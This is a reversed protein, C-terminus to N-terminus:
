IHVTGGTMNITSNTIFENRISFIVADAMDEPTGLRGIFNNAAIVKRKEDDWDAIMESEFASPLVLNIRVKGRFDRAITHLIGALAAKTTAYPMKAGLHAAATGVLTISSQPSLKSVYQAFGESLKAPLYENVLFSERWDHSSVGALIVLSVSELEKSVEIDKKIIEFLANVSTEDRVGDFQIFQRLKHPNTRGIFVFSYGRGLRALAGSM